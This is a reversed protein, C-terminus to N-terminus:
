YLLKMRNLVDSFKAGVPIVLVLSESHESLLEALQARGVSQVTQEPMEAPPNKSPKRARRCIALFEAQSDLLKKAALNANPKATGAIDKLV